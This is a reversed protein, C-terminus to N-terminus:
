QSILSIYVTAFLQEIKQTYFLELLHQPFIFIAGRQAM